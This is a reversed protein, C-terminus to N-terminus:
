EQKRVRCWAEEEKEQLRKKLNTFYDYNLKKYNTPQENIRQLWTPSCSGGYETYSHFKDNQNYNASLAEEIKKNELEM